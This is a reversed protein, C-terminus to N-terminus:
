AGGKTTPPLFTEVVDIAGCEPCTPTMRRLQLQQEGTLTRRHDCGTCRYHKPGIRRLGRLSSRPIAM